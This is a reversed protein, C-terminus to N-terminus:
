AFMQNHYINRFYNNEGKFIHNKGTTGGEKLCDCEKSKRKVKQIDILRYNFRDFIGLCLFEFFITKFFHRKSTRTVRLNASYICFEVTNIVTSPMYTKNRDTGFGYRYVERPTSM